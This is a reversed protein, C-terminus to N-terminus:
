TKIKTLWSVPWLSRSNDVDIRVADAVPDIAVVTAEKGLFPDDTERQWRSYFPGVDVTDPQPPTMPLRVRDGVVLKAPAKKEPTPKKPAVRVPEAAGENRRKVEAYYIEIKNLDIAQFRSIPDPIENASVHLLVTVIRKKLALAGGMEVLVWDSERSAPSLLILLEDSSALHEDIAENFRSGAEIDKQDLFTQLGLEELDRSIRRAIWGDLSSYSIFM